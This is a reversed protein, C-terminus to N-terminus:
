NPTRPLWIAARLVSACAYMADDGGREPQTFASFTRESIRTRQMPLFHKQDSDQIVEELSELRVRRDPSPVELEDDIALASVSLERFTLVCTRSATIGDKFVQSVEPKLFAARTTGSDSFSPVCHTPWELLAEKRQASRITRTCAGRLSADHRLHDTVLSNRAHRTEGRM